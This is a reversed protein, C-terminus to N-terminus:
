HYHDQSKKLNMIIEDKFSKPHNVKMDKGWSLVWRLLPIKQNSVFKMINRGDTTKSFKQSSHWEREEIIRAIEDSYEIEVQIKKQNIFVGFDADFFATPNFDEPVEFFERLVSIEVIRTLSFMRIDNRYEDFAVMYWSGREGILHYPHVRRTHASKSKLSQYIIELVRHRELAPLLEDWVHQSIHVLPENRISIADIIGSHVTSNEPLMELMKQKINTISEFFPTNSYNHLLQEFLMMVSLAGEGLVASPLSYFEDTYFYGKKKGGSVIPAGLENRMFEIDRKITRASVEYERAMEVANWNIGSSVKRHIYLIRRFQAPQQRLM